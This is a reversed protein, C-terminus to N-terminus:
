RTPRGVVGVVAGVVGVVVAGVVEGVVAVVAAGVVEVVVVLQKFLTSLCPETAKVMSVVPYPFVGGGGWFFFQYIQSM